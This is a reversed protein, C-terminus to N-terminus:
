HEMFQNIRVGRRVELGSAEALGTRPQVGIAFAVMGAKIRRGDKTIVAQVKGRKELIRDLETNKHITVGEHKLRNLVIISETSDLVRSWYKEGRLFFHVNVNRAQLGEVIELATIGGGVVVANRTWRAKQIMRQTEAMSDLYVVGDLGEGGTKPRVARAGLALLLCDYRMRKRDKFIVESREPFIKVATNRYIALDRKRFDQDTFPYLSKEGLEKSLYYALGPRSYYGATEASVCVIEGKPDHFRITEAAAIGAAGTGLIVYRTM